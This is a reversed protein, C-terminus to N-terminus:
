APIKHWGPTNGEYYFAWASIGLDEADYHVTTKVKKKVPPTGEEWEAQLTLFGPGYTHYSGQGTWDRSVGLDVNGADYQIAEGPYSYATFWIPVNLLNSTRLILPSWYVGQDGGLLVLQAPAGATVTQGVDFRAAGSPCEARVNYPMEPVYTGSYWERASMPDVHGWDEKIARDVTYITIWATQSTRNITRYGISM